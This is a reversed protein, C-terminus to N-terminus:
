AEREKKDPYHTYGKANLEKELEDDERGFSPSHNLMFPFETIERIAEDRRDKNNYHILTFDFGRTDVPNGLIWDIKDRDAYASAFRGLLVPDEIVKFLRGIWLVERITFYQDITRLREEYIQLIIPLSEPPVSSQSLCGVSWQSDLESVPHNRAESIWKSLTEHTPPIEGQEEIAKTLEIALTKTPVHKNQPKTSELVILSHIWKAM